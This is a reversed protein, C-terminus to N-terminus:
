SGGAMPCGALRCYGHAPIAQCAPCFTPLAQGVEDEDQTCAGRLDDETVVFEHEDIRITVFEGDGELAVIRSIRPGVGKAEDLEEDTM